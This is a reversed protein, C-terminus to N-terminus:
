SSLISFTKQKADPLLLNTQINKYPAVLAPASDNHAAIWVDYTFDGPSSM